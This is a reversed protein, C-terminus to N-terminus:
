AIASETWWAEILRGDADVYRLLYQPNSLDAYEARAIVTGFEFSDILKVKDGLEHKYM